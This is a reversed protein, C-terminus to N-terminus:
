LNCLECLIHPHANTFLFGKPIQHRPEFMILTGCKLGLSESLPYGFEVKEENKKHSTKCKVMKEWTLYFLKTRFKIYAKLIYWNNESMFM